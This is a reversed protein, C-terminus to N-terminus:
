VGFTEKIEKISNVIVPHEDRRELIKVCEKLLLEAFKELEQSSILYNSGTLGQQEALERIRENM